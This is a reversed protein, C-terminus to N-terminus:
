YEAVRMVHGDAEAVLFGCRFGLTGDALSTIGNFVFTYHAGRLLEALGEEAEPSL